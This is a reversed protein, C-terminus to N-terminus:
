RKEKMYQHKILKEALSLDPKVLHEQLVQAHSSDLPDEDEEYV